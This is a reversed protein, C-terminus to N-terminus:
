VWWRGGIARKSKMRRPERSMRGRQSAQKQKVGLYREIKPLEAPNPFQPHLAFDYAAFAVILERDDAPFDPETDDDTLEPALYIYDLVVNAPPNAGRLLYLRDNEIWYGDGRRHRDEPQVMVGWRDGNTERLASNESDGYARLFDDPLDVYRGGTTDSGTFTLAATSKKWRHPNATDLLWLQADRMGQHLYRNVNDGEQEENEALIGDGAFTGTLRYFALRLQARNSLSVSM